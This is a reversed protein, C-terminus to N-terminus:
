FKLEKDYGAKRMQEITDQIHRETLFLPKEELVKDSYGGAVYDRFKGVLEASCVAIDRPVGSRLLKVCEPYEPYKMVEGSFRYLEYWKQQTMDDYGYGLTGLFEFIRPQVAEDWAIDSWCHFLYGRLFDKGQAFRERNEKLFDRLMQKWIDYDRDRIHAGYREAESAQEMGYNVCDPSIAGLLFDAKNSVGLEEAMRYALLIHVPSSPM